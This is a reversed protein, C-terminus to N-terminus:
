KTLRNFERNELLAQQFSRKKLAEVEKMREDEVGKTSKLCAYYEGLTTTIPQGLLIMLLVLLLDLRRYRGKGYHLRVKM